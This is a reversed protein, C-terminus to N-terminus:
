PQSKSVVSGLVGLVAGAETKGAYERSAVVTMGPRGRAWDVRGLVFTWVDAITYCGFVEPLARGSGEGLRGACLMAGLLQPMPDTGALGRKAQIVVLCPAGMEEEVSLALAGDAEGHVEVGDFTAALPVGSWARVDGREALALLPYIARAWITAANVRQAKYYLLKEGLFGLQVRDREGIERGALEEWFAPATPETRIDAIEALTATTLTNFVCTKM